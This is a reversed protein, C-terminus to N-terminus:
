IHILSLQTGVVRVRDGLEVVHEPIAVQDNDARRVRSIRAGWRDALQNNLEAITRGALEHESVTIRRFDLDHRDDDLIQPSERGASGLINDLDEPAGVLTVVDGPHLVDFYKPITLENSGVRRLRTVQVEGNGISDIEAISIERMVQM